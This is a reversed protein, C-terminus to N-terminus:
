TGSKTGAPGQWELGLYQAARKLTSENVPKGAKIKRWTPESILSIEAMNPIHRDKMAEQIQEIM